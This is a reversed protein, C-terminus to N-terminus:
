QQQVAGARLASSIGVAWSSRWHPSYLSRLALALCDEAGAAQKPLKPLALFNCSLCFILLMIISSPCSRWQFAACPCMNHSPKLFSLKDLHRIPFFWHLSLLLTQSGWHKTDSNYSGRGHYLTNIYRELATGRPWPEKKIHRNHQSQWGSLATCCWPLQKEMEKDGKAPPHSPMGRHTCPEAWCKSRLARNYTHPLIITPLTKAQKWKIRYDAIHKSLPNKLM